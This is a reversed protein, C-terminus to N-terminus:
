CDVEAFVTFFQTGSQEIAKHATREAYELHRKRSGKKSLDRGGLLADKIQELTLGRSAAHMTWAMSARHLDDGYAQNAHSEQLPKVGAHARRRRHRQHPKENQKGRDDSSTAIGALSEAATSYVRRRASRLRAFPRMESELQRTRKSNTFGARRGFHPLPRMQPRPAM